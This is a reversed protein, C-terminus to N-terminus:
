IKKRIKNKIRHFAVRLALESQGTLQAIEEYSLDQNLRMRLLQRDKDPLSRVAALARALKEPPEDPPDAAPGAPLPEKRLKERARVRDVCLNRMLIYSWARPDRVEDLRDRTTWMKLFVDQVADRAEEQSELLSLGIRYLGEGLPLFRATFEEPTM